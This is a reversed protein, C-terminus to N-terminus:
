PRRLVPPMPATGGEMPAPSGQASQGALAAEAEARAEGYTLTVTGDLGKSAELIVKAVEDIRNERKEEAQAVAKADPVAGLAAAKAAETRQKWYEFAQEPALLTIGMTVVDEPNDYEQEFTKGTKEDRFVIRAGAIDGKRNTINGEADMFGSKDTVITTDDGFYDLRNYGEMIESAFSDFDGVSAAFSARAWNRMGAKVQGQDMFEQFEQAKDIQGRRLFEKIVIPAGVERYRELFSDAARERQAETFPRNGAAGLQPADQAAAAAAAEIAPTSATGMAATAAGALQKTAPTANEPVNSVRPGPGTASAPQQQPQQGPSVPPQGQAQTAQPAQQMQPAAGLTPLYPLEVGDPGGTAYKLAPNIQRNLANSTMIVANAAATPIADIAAIGRNKAERLDSVLGNGGFKFDYNPKSAGIQEQLKKRFGDMDFNPAATPAANNTQTAKWEEELAMADAMASRYEATNRPTQQDEPPLM